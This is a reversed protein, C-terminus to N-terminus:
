RNVMIEVTNSYESFVKEATTYSTLRYYMKKNTLITKDIFELAAGDYIKNFHGGEIKKELEYYIGVGLNNWTLKISTKNSDIEFTLVPTAPTSNWSIPKASVEKSWLSRGKPSVARIKLFYDETYKLNSLYYLELNSSIIVSDKYTTQFTPRYAIVFFEEDDTNDWWTLRIRNQGSAVARVNSPPPVLSWLATSVENSFKSYVTDKYSRVKYYHTTSPKETTDIYYTLNSPLKMLLMYGANDKKRWIEYGTINSSVADWSIIYKRDSIQQISLNKPVFDSSLNNKDDKVPEQDVFFEACGGIVLIIIFSSLRLLYKLQKM